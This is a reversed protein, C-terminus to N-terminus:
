IFFWFIFIKFGQKILTQNEVILEANVQYYIRLPFYFVFSTHVGFINNPYVKFTGRDLIKGNSDTLNWSGNICYEKNNEVFFGYGIGGYIKMIIEEDSSTATSLNIGIFSILLIGIIGFSIIKKM